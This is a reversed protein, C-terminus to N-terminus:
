KQDPNPSLHQATHTPLTIFLPELTDPARELAGTMIEKPSRNALDSCKLAIKL